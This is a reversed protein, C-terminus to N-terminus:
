LANFNNKLSCTSSSKLLKKRNWLSPKCKVRLSKVLNNFETTLGYKKILKLDINLKSFIINTVKEIDKKDDYHIDCDNNNIFILIQDKINYYNINDKCNNINLLQNFNTIRNNNKM